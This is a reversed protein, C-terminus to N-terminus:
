ATAKKKELVLLVIISRRAIDDDPQWTRRDSHEEGQTAEAPKWGARHYACLRSLRGKRVLATVAPRMAM